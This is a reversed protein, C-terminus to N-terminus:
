DENRITRLLLIPDRWRLDYSSLADMAPTPTVNWDERFRRLANCVAVAALLEESLQKIQLKAGDYLFRVDGLKRLADREEEAAARMVEAHALADELDIIRNQAKQWELASVVSLGDSTKYLTTMAGGSNAAVLARYSLYAQEKTNSGEEVAKLWARAARIEALMASASNRLEAILAADESPRRGYRPLECKNQLSSMNPDPGIVRHYQSGQYVSMDEGISAEWPKPNAAKELAELKDLDLTM